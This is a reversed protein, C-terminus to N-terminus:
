CWSTWEGWGTKKIEVKRQLWRLKWFAYNLDQLFVCTNLYLIFVETLDLLAKFQVTFCICLLHYVFHSGDPWSCVALYTVTRLQSFTLSPSNCYTNILHTFQSHSILIVTSCIQNWFEHRPCKSTLQPFPCLCCPSGPLLLPEDVLPFVRDWTWLGLIWFCVPRTVLLIVLLLFM